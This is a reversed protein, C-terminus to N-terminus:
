QSKRGSKRTSGSKARLEKVENTIKALEAAKAELQKVLRGNELGLRDVERQVKQLEAK